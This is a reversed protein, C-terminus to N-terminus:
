MPNGMTFTNSDVKSHVYLLTLNYTFETMPDWVGHTEKSEAESSSALLVRVTKLPSVGSAAIFKPLYKTNNSLMTEQFERTLFRIKRLVVDTGFLHDQKAVARHDFVSTIFIYLM